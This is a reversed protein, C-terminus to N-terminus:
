CDIEKYKGHKKKLVARIRHYSSCSYVFNHMLIYKSVIVQLKDSRKCTKISNNEKNCCLFRRLLSSANATYLVASKRELVLMISVSSYNAGESSCTHVSRKQSM